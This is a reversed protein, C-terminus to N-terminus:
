HEPTQPTLDVNVGTEAQIVDETIEELINDDPIGMKRNISSCSILFCISFILAFKKM